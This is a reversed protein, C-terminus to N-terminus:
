TSFIMEKEVFHLFLTASLLDAAGGPSINHEIFADGLESVMKKGYPSCMAGRDLVHRARMQMDRHMEIGKRSMINTDGVNAILAILAHIAADNITCNHRLASRLAPLGHDHVSPLGGEVEGRIGSIGYHVYLMEGKTLPRDPPHSVLPALEREVIGKTVKAAASTIDMGSTLMNRRLLYGSAGLMMFFLFILGKQTNVGDTVEFMRKETEVGISRIPDLLTDLSGKYGYGYSAVENFGQSLVSSSLIFSTYDMDDHAGCSLPTVLGPKPHSSVELLISRTALEALRDVPRMSNM